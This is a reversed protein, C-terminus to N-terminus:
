TIIHLWTRKSKIDKITSKHVKFKKAIVSASFGEKILIKIQKVQNGSLKASHAREGKASRGKNLMDDINDQQTGLFLHHPNVCSPNDCKHLVHLKKNFPGFEFEYAVRHAWQNQPKIWFMGYGDIDKGARWIWCEKRDKVEVKSWFRKEIDNM